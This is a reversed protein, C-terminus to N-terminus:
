RKMRQNVEALVDQWQERYTVPFPGPIDSPPFPTPDVKPYIARRYDPDVGLSRCLAKAAHMAESSALGHEVIVRRLSDETMKPSARGRAAFPHKIVGSGGCTLCVPETLLGVSICAPCLTYDYAEIRPVTLTVAGLDRTVGNLTHSFRGTGVEHYIDDDTM